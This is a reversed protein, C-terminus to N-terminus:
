KGVHVQEELATVLQTPHLDSAWSKELGCQFSVALIYSYLCPLRPRQEPYSLKSQHEIM